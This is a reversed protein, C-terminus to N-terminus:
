IDLIDLIDMNRTFDERDGDRDKCGRQDQRQLSTVDRVIRGLSMATLIIVFLKVNIMIFQVIMYENSYIYCSDFLNISVANSAYLSARSM